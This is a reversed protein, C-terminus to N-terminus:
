LPPKRAGKMCIRQSELLMQRTAERAREDAMRKREADAAARQAKQEDGDMMEPQQAQSSVGPPHGRMGPFRNLADTEEQTMPVLGRPPQVEEAMPRRHATTGLRRNIEDIEAQTM